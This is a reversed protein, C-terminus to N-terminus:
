VQKSLRLRFVDSMSQVILTGIVQMVTIVHLTLAFNYM